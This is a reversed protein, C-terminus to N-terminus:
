RTSREPHHPTHGQEIRRGCVYSGLLAGTVMGLPTMLLFTPGLSEGIASLGANILVAVFFGAVVGLIVAGTCGSGSAATLIGVLVGIILLPVGVFGIQSQDSSIVGLEHLLLPVLAILLGPLGGRVGGIALRRMTLRLPDHTTPAPRRRGSPTPPSQDAPEPGAGAERAGAVRVIASVVLALVFAMAFNGVVAGLVESWTGRDEEPGILQSASASVGILLAWGAAVIAPFRLLSRGPRMPTWRSARGMPDTGPEGHETMRPPQM